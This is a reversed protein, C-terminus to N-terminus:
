RGRLTKAGHTSDGLACVMVSVQIAHAVGLHRALLGILYSGLPSVGMVIIIYVSIVRGRLEDPVALQILTNVLVINTIMGWGVFVLLMLSLQLSHSISFLIIAICFVINGLLLAKSQHRTDRLSSISLVGFLAGLGSAGMMWGQGTVGVKLIKDAFVPMLVMYPQGFLASIGTMVLLVKM